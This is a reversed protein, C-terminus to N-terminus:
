KNERCKHKYEDIVRKFVTVNYLGLEGDEFLLRCCVCNPYLDVQGELM